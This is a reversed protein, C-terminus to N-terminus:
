AVHKYWHRRQTLTYKDESVVQTSQSEWWQVTSDRGQTARCGQRCPSTSESPTPAPPCGWGCAASASPLAPSCWPAASPSGGSEQCSPPRAIGSVMLYLLVVGTTLLSDIVWKCFIFSHNCKLIHWETESTIWIIPGTIQKFTETLTWGQLNEDLGLWQSKCRSVIQPEATVSHAFSWYLVLPEPTLLLHWVAEGWVQHYTRDM